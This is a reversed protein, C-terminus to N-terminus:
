DKISKWWWCLEFVETVQILIRKEVEATKAQATANTAACSKLLRGLQATRRLENNDNQIPISIIIIYSGQKAAAMWPEPQARLSVLHWHVVPLALIVSDMVAQAGDLHEAPSRALVDVHCTEM